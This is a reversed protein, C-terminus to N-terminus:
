SASGRRALPIPPSSELVASSRDAHTQRPNRVVHIGTIQTNAVFCVFLAELRQGIRFVIAPESNVDEISAFSPRSAVGLANSRGCEIVPQVILM